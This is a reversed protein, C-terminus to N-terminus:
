VGACVGPHYCRVPEVRLELEVEYIQSVLGADYDPKVCRIRPLWNHQVVFSVNFYPKCQRRGAGAGVCSSGDGERCSLMANVRREGQANDYFHHSSDRTTM